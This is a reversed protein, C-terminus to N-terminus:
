WRDEEPIDLPIRPTFRARLAVKQKQRELLLRAIIEAPAEVDQSRKLTEKLLREDVDVRYLLRCLGDFDTEILHTVAKVLMAQLDFDKQDAIIVPSDLLELIWKEDTIM